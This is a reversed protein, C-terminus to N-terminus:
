GSGGGAADAMNRFRAEMTREMADLLALDVVALEYERLVLPDVGTSLVEQRLETAVEQMAARQQAQHARQQEALQRILDDPNM